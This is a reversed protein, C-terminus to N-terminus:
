AFYQRYEPEAKVEKWLEEMSEFYSAGNRAGFPLWLGPLAHEDTCFYKWEDEDLPYVAQLECKLLGKENKLIVYRMAGDKSYIVQVIEDALMHLHEDHMMEVITEWPPMPRTNIKRAKRFLKDFLKM